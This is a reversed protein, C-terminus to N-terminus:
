RPSEQPYWWPETVDRYAVPRFDHYPAPAAYHSSVLLHNPNQFWSFNPATAGAADSAPAELAPATSLRSPFATRALFVIVWAVAALGLGVIPLVELLGARVIREGLFSGGGIGIQFAVVYVASAADASRPAVRLVAAQMIVPSATMAAGWALVAVITPGPGLAPVLLALAAIMVGILVKLLPGPRRDVWRGIFWNGVLGAVGFGLLLASLAPGELGANRRLLPALFTYASFLGTMLVITALAVAVLPRSRLVLIANRQRQWASTQLDGPLPSLAPLQTLIGVVCLAGGVALAALVVRWGFYQGLATGLPVGVVIALSNGLFVWATARGGQGPRVLRFAIPAVTAWFIGHALACALRAVVLLAFTPALASALQSLAFISMGIAILRRRPVQMTVATLPISTLAAVAAYITVLLGVDAESVSMDASIEPLLGVPIAEATVYVFTSAGLATLAVRPNM